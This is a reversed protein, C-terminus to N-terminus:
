SDKSLWICASEMVTDTITIAGKKRQPSYLWVRGDEQFGVITAKLDYRTKM